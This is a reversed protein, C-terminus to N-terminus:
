DPSKNIPPPAFIREIETLILIYAAYYAHLRSPLLFWIDRYRIAKRIALSHRDYKDRKESRSPSSSSVQAVVAFYRGVYPNAMTGSMKTAVWKHDM